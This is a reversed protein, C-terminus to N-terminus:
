TTDNYDLHDEEPLETISTQSRRPYPTKFTPKSDVIRPSTPTMKPAPKPKMMQVRSLRQEPGELKIIAGSTSTGPTALSKSRKSSRSDESEEISKRKGSPGSSGRTMSELHAFSTNSTDVRCGRSKSAKMSGSGRHLYDVQVGPVISSLCDRARMARFDAANASEDNDNDDDDNDDNDPSDVEEVINSLAEEVVARLSDIVVSPPRLHIPLTNYKGKLSKKEDSSAAGAIRNVLDNRKEECEELAMEDLSFIANKLILAGYSRAFGKIDDFYSSFQNPIKDRVRGTITSLKASALDDLTPNIRGDGNWKAIATDSYRLTESDFDRKQSRPGSYRTCTWCIVYFISELDHFYSHPFDPIKNMRDYAMFPLTGTREAIAESISRDVSVAYDYDILLGRPIGEHKYLLINRFSIDRHVFGNRRLIEVALPCTRTLLTGYVIDGFARVLVRKSTFAHLKKGFPKMVIRCLRRIECRKRTTEDFSTWAWKPEVSDWVVLERRFEATTADVSIWEGPAAGPRRSKLVEHSVIQPIVRAGDETCLEKEGKENLKNLIEVETEKRCVDVWSDKIVVKSQDKQSTGRYCVTGRGKIGYEHYICRVKYKVGGTTIYLGDVEKKLTPEFGIHEEDAFLLGVFLRLIKRPNGHLSINESMVIGSRDFILFTVYPKVNGNAGVFIVAPVFRRGPQADFVSLAFRTCYDIGEALMGGRKSELIVQFHRWRVLHPQEEDVPGELMVEDPKYSTKWEDDEVRKQHFMATCFRPKVDTLHAFFNEKVVEGIRNVFQAASQESINVEGAPWLIWDGNQRLAGAQLAQEIQQNNIKAIADPFVSDVLSFLGRMATQTSDSRLKSHVQERKKKDAPAKKGDTEIELRVQSNIRNSPPTENSIAKSIAGYLDPPTHLADHSSTAM